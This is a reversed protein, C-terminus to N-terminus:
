HVSGCITTGLNSIEQLSCTCDGRAGHHEPWSYIQASRNLISEISGSLIFSVDDIDFKIDVDTNRSLSLAQDPRADLQFGTSGLLLSNEM